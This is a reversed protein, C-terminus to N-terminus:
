MNEEIEMCDCNSFYRGCNKEKCSTTLWPWDNMVSSVAKILLRQTSPKLKDVSFLFSPYAPIDAQVSDYPDNDRRLLKFTVMLYELVNPITDYFEHGVKKSQQGPTFVCRVVIDQTDNQVHSYTIRLTDDDSATTDEGSRIYRITIAPMNSSTTM